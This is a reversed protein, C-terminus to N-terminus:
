LVEAFLNVTIAFGFISLELSSGILKKDVRSWSLAKEESWRRPTGAELGEMMSM